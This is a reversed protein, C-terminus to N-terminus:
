PKAMTTPSTASGVVEVTQAAVVRAHVKERGGELEVQITDGTAGAALAKGSTAVRVGAARAYVNVSAGRQVLPAAEPQKGPTAPRFEAPTKTAPLEFAAQRVGASRQPRSQGPLGGHEGLVAVRESGTVRIDTREVGSLALLQRVDQQTMVREGGLAPAPCLPIDGLAAALAPDEAEIEAVDALRVVSTSCAASARLRVEAADAQQCVGLVAIVFLLRM